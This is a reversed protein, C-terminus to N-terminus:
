DEVWGYKRGIEALASRAALIQKGTLSPDVTLLVETIEQLYKEQSIVECLEESFEEDSNQAKTYNGSRAPRAAPAHRDEAIRVASAKLGRDGEEVEFMVSIGPKILHKDDLLDNVHLFIDEDGSEPAIFGYGKVQDFRIVRGLDM